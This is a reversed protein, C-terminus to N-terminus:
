QLKDEPYIRHDPTHHDSNCRDPALHALAHHDPALHTLTNPEDKARCDTTWAPVDVSIVRNEWTRLLLKRGRKGILYNPAIPVKGYGGPANIIYTPVALGSTFGRLHEMIELGDDVPTIFHRTGRVGKAHFIYYPRVRIKLLEQNLKKMVHPQNNIGRLLVSQNGLVVGAMALMDCAQRAEPTVELPHNFQTNIYIPPYKQLVACLYPTIRQPMTVPARTGLRKIELHPIDHLKQLLWDLAQDDLLLADGGTVLVDRIEENARVYDLAEALQPYPLHQDERSINRRRQCHRCFMACQNTVNIILRDPYRRTVGPAPSTWQEAMPDDHGDRDTIEMISPVAQMWLPGFPEDCMILALYYPSIAWRLHKSVEAIELKLDDTLPLLAALTEVDTIRHQLQWHWNNWDTEWGGMHDLIKAQAQNYQQSLDFGTLIAMKAELYDGIQRKLVAARHQAFAAPCPEKTNNFPQEEDPSCVDSSYNVVM